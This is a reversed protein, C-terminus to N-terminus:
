RGSSDEQLSSLASATNRIADDVHAGASYVQATLEELAFVYMHRAEGSWVGGGGTTPLVARAHALRAAVADLSYLQAQLARDAGARDASSDIWSHGAAGVIM